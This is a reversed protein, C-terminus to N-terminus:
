MKRSHWGSSDIHVFRGFDAPKEWSTEFLRQGCYPCHIVELATTWIIDGAMELYHNEELDAETAERQINLRWTPTNRLLTSGTNLYISVGEMPMSPCQHVKPGSNRNPPNM